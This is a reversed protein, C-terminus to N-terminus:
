CGFLSKVEERLAFRERLDIFWIFTKKHVLGRFLSFLGEVLVVGQYPFEESGLFFLLWWFVMGRKSSNKRRLGM